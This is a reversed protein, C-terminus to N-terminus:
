CGDNSCSELCGQLDERRRVDEDDCVAVGGRREVVGLVDARLVADRVEPRGDAGLNDRLEDTAVGGLVELM